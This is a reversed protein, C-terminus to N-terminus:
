ADWRVPTVKVMKKPHCGCECEFGRNIVESDNERCDLCGMRCAVGV